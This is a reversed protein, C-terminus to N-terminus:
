YYINCAHHVANQMLYISIYKMMVLFLASLKSCFIYFDILHIFSKVQVYNAQGKESM